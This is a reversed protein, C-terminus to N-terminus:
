KEGQKEGANHAYTDAKPLVCGSQAVLLSLSSLLSRWQVEPVARPFSQKAVALLPSVVKLLLLASATWCAIVAAREPPVTFIAPMQAPVPVTPLLM